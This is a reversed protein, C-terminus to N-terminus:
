KSSQTVLPAKITPLNQTDLPLFMISSGPHNAEIHQQVQAFQLPVVRPCYPCRFMQQNINVLQPMTAALSNTVMAQAQSQNVVSVATPAGMLSASASFTPPAMHVFRPAGQSGPPISIVMNGVVAGMPMNIIQPVQSTTILQPAQQRYALTNPTNQRVQQPLIQVPQLFHQSNPVSVQLPRQHQPILAEPKINFVEFMDVNEQPVGSTSPKPSPTQIPSPSPSTKSLDLAGPPAAPTEDLTPTSFNSAQQVTSMTPRPIQPVNLVPRHQNMQSADLDSTDFLKSNIPKPISNLMTTTNFADINGKSKSQTTSMKSILASTADGLKELQDYRILPPPARMLPPPAGSTPKSLQSPHSPATVSAASKPSLLEKEKQAKLQNISELLNKKKRPQQQASPKTVPATTATSTNSSVAPVSHQNSSVTVSGTSLYISQSSLSHTSIGTVTPNVFASSSLAGVISPNTNSVATTGPIGMSAISTHIKLPQSTPATSAQQQLAQGFMVQQQQSTLQGLQLLQGQHQIFRPPMQNLVNVFHNQFSVPAQSVQARMIANKLHQQATLPIPQRIAYQPPQVPPPPQSSLPPQAPLNPKLTTTAANTQQHQQQQNQGQKSRDRKPKERILCPVRSFRTGDIAISINVDATSQRHVHLIHVCVGQETKSKFEKCFPCVFVFVESHEQELHDYITELSPMHIKCILCLYIDKELLNKDGLKFHEPLRVTVTNLNRKAPESLAVPPNPNDTPHNVRIHDIIKGETEAELKKCYPCEFLRSIEKHATRLHGVMAPLSPAHVNCKECKFTNSVKAGVPFPKGSASTKPTVGSPQQFSPQQNSTTSLHMVPTARQQHQQLQLQQQQSVAFMAVAQQQLQAANQQPLPLRPQLLQKYLEANPNVSAMGQTTLSVPFNPVRLEVSAVPINTAVRHTASYPPPPKSFSVADPQTVAPAPETDMMLDEQDKLSVVDVIKFNLGGSEDDDEATETTAVTDANEHSENQVPLQVSPNEHEPNESTDMREQTTDDALPKYMFEVSPHIDNYHKQIEEECTYSVNNCESCVYRVEEKTSEDSSQEPVNSVTTLSETSSVAPFTDVEPHDPSQNEVSKQAPSKIHYSRGNKSRDASSDYVFPISQKEDKDKRQIFQLFNAEYADTPKPSQKNPSEVENEEKKNPSQKGPSRKNVGRDQKSPSDKTEDNVNSKEEPSKTRKKHHHHHKESDSSESKNGSKSKKKKENKEKFPKVTSETEVPSDPSPQVMYKKRRSSLDKVKIKLPPVTKRATQQTQLGWNLQESFDMPSKPPYEKIMSEVVSPKLELTNEVKKETEPEDTIHKGVEIDLQQEVIEKIESKEKAIDIVKESMKETILPLDEETNLPLDKATKIDQKVEISDDEKQNADVTEYIENETKSSCDAVQKLEQEILGNEDHVQEVKSEVKGVDLTIDKTENDDEATCKADIGDIKHSANDKNSENDDVLRLEEIHKGEESKEVVESETNSCSQEYVQNEANCVPKEFVENEFTSAPEDNQSDDDVSEEFASTEAESSEVDASINLKKIFDILVVSCKKCKKLQDGVTEKTSTAQTETDSDNDMIVTEADSNVVDSAVYEMSEQQLAKQKSKLKAEKRSAKEQEQKMYENEELSQKMAINDLPSRSIKQRLEFKRTVQGDPSQKTSPIKGELKEAKRSNGGKRATRSMKVAKAESVNTQSEPLTTTLIKKKRGVKKKVVTETQKQAIPLPMPKRKKFLRRKKLGGKVPGVVTAEFPTQTSMGSMEKSSDTQISDSRNIENSSHSTYMEISASKSDTMKNSDLRSKISVNKPDFPKTEPVGYTNDSQNVPQSLTNKVPTLEPNLNFYIKTLQPSLNMLSQERSKVVSTVICKLVDKVIEHDDSETCNNTITRAMLDTERQPSKKMVDEVNIVRNVEDAKTSTASWSPNLDVDDFQEFLSKRHVDGKSSDTDNKNILHKLHKRKPSAKQETKASEKHLKKGVPSLPKRKRRKKRFTLFPSERRLRFKREKFSEGPPYAKSNIDKTKPLVKKKINQKKVNLNSENDQFLNDMAIGSDVLKKVKRLRKEDLLDFEGSLTRKRKKGPIIEFRQRTRIASDDSEMNEEGLVLIHKELQRKTSSVSISSLESCISETDSHKILDKSEVSIHRKRGPKRVEIDMINKEETTDCKATESTDLSGSSVVKIKEDVIESNLDTELKFDPKVEDKGGFENISVAIISEATGSDPISQMVISSVKTLSVDTTNEQMGSSEISVIQEDQKAKELLKKNLLKHQLKRRLDNPPLVTMTKADVNQVNAALMESRRKTEIAKMKKRKAISQIGSSKLFPFKLSPPDDIPLDHRAKYVVSEISEDLNDHIVAEPDEKADEKQKEQKHDIVLDNESIIDKGSSLASEDFSKDKVVNKEKEDSDISSEDTSEASDTSQTVENRCAKGNDIDINVKSIKIEDMSKRKNMERFVSMEPETSKPKTDTAAIPSKPKNKSGPPRGPSKKALSLSRRQLTKSPRGPSKRRSFQNTNLVIKPKNKSGPPRGAKRKMGIGSADNGSRQSQETDVEMDETEQYEMFAVAPRMRSLSNLGKKRMFGKHTRHKLGYKGVDLKKSTDLIKKKGLIGRKYNKPPRGIRKKPLVLCSGDMENADIIEVDVPPEAILTPPTEKPRGVRRKIVLNCPTLPHPSKFTEDECNLPKSALDLSKPRRGRKGKPKKVVDTDGNVLGAIKSFDTKDGKLEKDKGKSELSSDRSSSTESSDRSPTRRNGQSKASDSLRPRGPRREGSNERSAAPSSKASGSGSKKGTADEVVKMTSTMKWKTPAGSEDRSITSYYNMVSQQEVSESAMKRTIKKTLPQAKKM